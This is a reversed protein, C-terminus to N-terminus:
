THRFFSCGRSGGQLREGLRMVIIEHPPAARHFRAVGYNRSLCFALVGVL